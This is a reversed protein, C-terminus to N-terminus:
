PRDLMCDAPNVGALGLVASILAAMWEILPVHGQRLVEQIESWVRLSV